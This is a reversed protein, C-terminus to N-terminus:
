ENIHLEEAITRLLKLSPKVETWGYLMDRDCEACVPTGSMEYYDATVGVKDHCEECEWYSLVDEDKVLAWM